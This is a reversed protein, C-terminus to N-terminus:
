PLMPGSDRILAGVICHPGGGGKNYETFDLEIIQVGEAELAKRTIPCGTPMVVKAPALALMNCVGADSEEPPVELWRINKRRLYRITEHDIRRRDVVALWADVLSFVMDLHIADTFYGIHIEEAGAERLFPEVQRVAEMNLSPGVGLIIHKPDLWIGNGGLEGVGRGRITMLIPCGLEMLKKALLVEHGKRFVFGGYRPVIAGGNVVFASASPWLCRFRVYPGHLVNPINIYELEVGENKLVAEFADFESRMKALDPPGNPYDYFLPDYAAEASVENETPRAVLAYRLTGIKSQAGWQRGWVAEIEDYFSISNLFESTPPKGYEYQYGPIPRKMVQMPQDGVLDLGPDVGMDERGKEGLADM